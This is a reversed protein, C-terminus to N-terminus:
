NIEERIWEKEREKKKRESHKTEWSRYWKAKLLFLGGVYLSKDKIIPSDFATFCDVVYRYPRFCNLYILLVNSCIKCSIKTKVKSM